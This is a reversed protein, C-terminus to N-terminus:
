QRQHPWTIPSDLLVNGQGHHVCHPDALVVADRGDELRLTSQTSALQEFLRASDDNCEDLVDGEVMPEGDDDTVGVKKRKRVMPERDNDYHVTKM